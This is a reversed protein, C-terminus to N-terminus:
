GFLLKLVEKAALGSLAKKLADAGEEALKPIAKKFRVVALESGVTFAAIDDISTKLKEREEVPLELLEDLLQETARKRALTWPYAHGCGHCFAHPEHHASWNFPLGLIEANCEPCYQLTAAGCTSCHRRCAEPRKEVQSNTTHGNTCVEARDLGGRANPDYGGEECMGGAYVLCRRIWGGPVPSGHRRPGSRTFMQGVKRFIDM